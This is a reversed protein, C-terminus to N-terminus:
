AAKRLRISLRMWYMLTVHGLSIVVSFLVHALVTRRWNATRITFHSDFWLILPFVALLALHSTGELVVPELWDAAGGDRGREFVEVGVNALFGVLIFVLVIGAEWWRRHDLYQQLTM